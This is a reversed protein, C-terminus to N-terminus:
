SRCRAGPLLAEVVLLAVTEVRELLAVRDVAVLLGARDFAVRDGRDDFALVARREEVRDTSRARDPAPPPQEPAFSLVDRPDLLRALMAVEAAQDLLRNRRPKVKSAM